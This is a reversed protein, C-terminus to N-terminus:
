IIWGYVYVCHYNFATIFLWTAATHLLLGSDLPASMLPRTFVSCHKKGSGSRQRGQRGESSATMPLLSAVFAGGM